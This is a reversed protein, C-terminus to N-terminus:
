FFGNSFVAATQEIVCVTSSHSAHAGAKPLGM